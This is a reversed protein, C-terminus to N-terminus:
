NDSNECKKTLTSLWNSFDYEALIEDSVPFYRSEMFEGLEEIADYGVIFVNEKKYFKQFRINIDNTLLKKNLFVSELPRQTLGSQGEQVMDVIVKSGSIKNLMAEYSIPESYEYKSNPEKGDDTIHFLCSFGADELQNKIELIKELRGKDAGVFIFDTLISTEKLKITSFYYTQQYIMANKDADKKDFTVLFDGLPRLANPDITKSVPNWYWHIVKKLYVKHITEAILKSYPNAPLIIYDFQNVERIWSGLMSKPIFGIGKLLRRAIKWLFKNSRFIDGVVVREDLSRHYNYFSDKDGSIFLVKM